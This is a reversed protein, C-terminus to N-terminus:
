LCSVASVPQVPTSVVREARVMLVVQDPTIGIAASLWLVM